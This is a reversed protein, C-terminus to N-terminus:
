GEFEQESQERSTTDDEEINTDIGESTVEENDIKDNTDIVNSLDKDENTNIKEEESDDDDQTTDLSSTDEFSTNSSDNSINNSENSLSSSTTVDYINSKGSSSYSSEFVEGNMVNMILEYSTEISNEDPIMVYLKQSSYSYTYEYGNTGTLSNSTVTWTDMNNLQMKVLSTIRNTPINTIFSGNLSNLLSNYKYIISKYVVKRILAEILAQQNKGRQNDGSTFAYRERVFSLAEEGDVHNYGKYYHYNDKSTFEYESYVDVGDLEDVIDIVSTFNVKIYYNINIGLLDEITKLSSEVGYIGAHTLKDKLGTRGHLEVYYDRPISTLLIQRTSPNVTMIINVDSRSVSSVIGYQDMGSIYINFAEKTVDVDKSIDSVKVKVTFTYIVRTDEDINDIGKFDYDSDKIINLYSDEIIISEVENTALKELMSEYNDYEKFYVSIKNTIKDKYLDSDINYSEYYGMYKGSLDDIKNYDSDAKVLVSFDYIVYDINSGNLLGTTKFIYLSIIGLIISFLISILNGIIQMKTKRRILVNIIINIILLTIVIAELYKISLVNLYMVAGLFIISILFLIISFLNFKKKRKTKKKSM